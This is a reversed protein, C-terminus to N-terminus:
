RHKLYWKVTDTIGDRLSVKSKWGLAELRSVDLLKRMMGDPMSANFTLAGEYNTIEQIMFALDRIPIDCGSGVNIHEAEDYHTM